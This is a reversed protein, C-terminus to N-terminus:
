EELSPQSEAVDIRRLWGRNPNLADQVQPLRLVDLDLPESKGFADIRFSRPLKDTVPKGNASRGPRCTCKCEGRHRCVIDHYETAQFPERTRNELIVKSPM